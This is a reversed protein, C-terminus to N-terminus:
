ESVTFYAYANTYVVETTKVSYSIRLRYEGPELKEIGFAKVSVSTIYEDKPYFMVLDEVGGCFGVVAWEGDVKHELARIPISSHKVVEGTENKVTVSIVKTESTIEGNVTAVVNEANGVTFFSMVFAILIIITKFISM